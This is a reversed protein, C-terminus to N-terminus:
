KIKNRKTLRKEFLKTVPKTTKKTSSLDKIVGVVPPKIKEIHAAIEPATNENIILGKTKKNLIGQVQSEAINLIENDSEIEASFLKEDIFGLKKKARTYAVYMLNHEQEVEWDQTASKSPMLFRCAIFVNEAELGKSKHITSLAIGGKKRDSFVNQIKEVLEDATTLGEALVLLAKIMDFKNVMTSTMMITSEGLGTMKMLKNRDEFLKEYLRIFVGDKTLNAYLKDQKTNEVLRKLNLGIDKGRIFCKKNMRIFENYAQMLPANNRCLVMDGDNIDELKVNYTIEGDCNEANAEISPVLKQAYEVIKKGCRYSISLPLAVTNPMAKLKDFTDPSASAFSYICQNRDGCFIYRTGMKQCKFLLERQAISFDQAEDGLVYDYKLNIPSMYLVNPLWVMDAYDVTSVNEKGWELVQLAVDIEDEVLIIEHREVLKVAGNYTDVLNHRCLNVIHTVNDLYKVYATTSLRRIDFSSLSKANKGIFARYKNEDIPAHFKLNRQIMLLGLSHVTRIDVNEMDGVKSQLENVIDKNFSCFLVKKDKPILDLIKILTTTKGSGAAAEIVLNGSEHQVYDFIAQAYRNPTFEIVPKNKKRPCM